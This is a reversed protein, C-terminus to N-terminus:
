KFFEFQNKTMPPINIIRVKGNNIIISLPLPNTEIVYEIYKSM